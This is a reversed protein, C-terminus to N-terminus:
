GGVYTPKKIIGDTEIEGPLCSWQNRRNIPDTAYFSIKVVLVSANKRRRRTKRGGELTTRKEWRTRWM